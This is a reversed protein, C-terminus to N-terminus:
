LGYYENGATLLIMNIIGKADEAKAAGQEEGGFFIFWVREDANINLCLSM